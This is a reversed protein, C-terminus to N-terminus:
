RERTGDNGQCCRAVIRGLWQRGARWQDLEVYENAQHAEEIRGPGFLICQIGLKQLSGADTAYSVGFTNRQGLLEAVLTYVPARADCLMPPSDSIVEFRVAARVDEPLTALRAEVRRAFDDSQQGPLVRFSFEITCGEPIVNVATGGAIVGVNLSPSPCEPFFESTENREASLERALARLISLVDGAREIANDGLKPYASHAARGAVTVRAWLYGKHMRVVRLGTPEGVVAQDPLPFESRWAEAFVKAGLTGTEEDATLLLALPRELEDDRLAALRNTALAVFGKMDATGRGYLRGGREVLEFPDSEWGPEDAPVVDLHGSLLLGGAREPGRRILLNVKRGDDYTQRWVRCGAQELYDAVFDAIPVNSNRSVSDFAILRAFLERDDLLGARM